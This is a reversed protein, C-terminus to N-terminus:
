QLIDRDTREILHDSEVHMLGISDIIICNAIIFIGFIVTKSLASLNEVAGYFLSVVALIESWPFTLIVLYLYSFANTEITMILFIISLLVLVLYIVLFKLGTKSMKFEM